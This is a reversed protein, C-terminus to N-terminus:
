SPGQPKVPRLSSLIDKNRFKIGTTMDQSITYSMYSLASDIITHKQIPGAHMNRLSRAPRVGIIQKLPKLIYTRPSVSYRLSNEKAIPTELTKMTSNKTWTSIGTLTNHYFLKGEVTAQPIWFPAEEETGDYNELISFTNNEDISETDSITSIFGDLSDAYDDMKGDNRGENSITPIARSLYKNRTSVTALFGLPNSKSAINDQQTANRRGLLSLNSKPFTEASKSQLQHFKLRQNRAALELTPSGPRKRAPSGPGLRNKTNWSDDDQQQQLWANRQRLESRAQVQGQEM